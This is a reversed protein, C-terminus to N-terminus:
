IEIFFAFFFLFTLFGVGVHKVSHGMTAQQATVNLPSTQIVASVATRVSVHNGDQFYIYYIYPEFAVYM